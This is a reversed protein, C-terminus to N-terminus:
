FKVHRFGFRRRCWVLEGRESIKMDTFTLEMMGIAKALFRPTVKVGRDKECGTELGQAMFIPEGKLIIARECDSM